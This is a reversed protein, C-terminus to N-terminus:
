GPGRRGGPPALQRGPPRRQPADGVDDNSLFAILSGDPSWQVDTLTRGPAGAGTPLPVPHPARRGSADAIVLGHAGQARSPGCRRACAAYALKTGDPSWSFERVHAAIRTRLRGDSSAVFLVLDLGPPVHVFPGPEPPVHVFAIRTGDPSWRGYDARARPDVTWVVKGTEDRVELARVGYGWRQVLLKSGDPSWEIAPTSTVSGSAARGSSRPCSRCGDGTADSSCSAATRASRSSKRCRPRRLVRARTRHGRRWPREAEPGVPASTRTSGCAWSSRPLSVCWIASVGAVPM